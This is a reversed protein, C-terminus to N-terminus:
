KPPRAAEIAADSTRTIYASLQPDLADTRALLAQTYEVPSLRRGKILVAAEALTLEHLATEVM